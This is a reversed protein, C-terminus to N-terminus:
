LFSEMKGAFAMLEAFYQEIVNRVISEATEESYSHTALNRDDIMDMWAQGNPILEEKFAHRVSDKSGIIGTIGKMSLFDKMVNWALEFSLEFAKIVSLLVIDNIASNKAYEVAFVLHSLAKKYNDFRQKWRTDEDM